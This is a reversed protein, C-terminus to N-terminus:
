DYKGVVSDYKGVHDVTLFEPFQLKPVDSCSYTRWGKVKCYTVNNSVLRLYNFM